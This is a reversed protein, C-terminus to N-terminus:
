GAAKKLEAAKENDLQKARAYAPLSSLNQWYREFAPRKEITSFMM